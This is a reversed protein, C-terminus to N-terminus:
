PMSKIVYCIIFHQRVGALISLDICYAGRAMQVLRLPATTAFYYRLPVVKQSPYDTDTDSPRHTSQFAREEWCDLGHRNPLIPCVVVPLGDKQLHM